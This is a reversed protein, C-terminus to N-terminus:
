RDPQYIQDFFGGDAFHQAQAKKWGGFADDITVLKVQPFRALRPPPVSTPEARVTSTSPPWDGPRGALVPLRLYAEALKRTGHREVNKDVLAVPPEACSASASPVVIEFKDRNGLEDLALM